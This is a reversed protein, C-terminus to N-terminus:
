DDVSIWKIRRGEVVQQPATAHLGQARRGPTRIQVGEGFSKDLRDSGFTQRSDYREAFPMESGGDSCKDLMIM